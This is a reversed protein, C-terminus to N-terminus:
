SCRQIVTFYDVNRVVTCEAVGGASVLEEEQWSHISTIQKCNVCIRDPLSSVLFWMKDDLRGSGKQPIWAQTIVMSGLCESCFLRTPQGYLGRTGFEPRWPHLLPWILYCVTLVWPCPLVSAFLPLSVRLSSVHVQPNAWLGLAPPSAQPNLCWALPHEHCSIVNIEGGFRMLDWSASHQRGCDETEEYKMFLITKTREQMSVPIPRMMEQRSHLLLKQITKRGEAKEWRSEMRCTVSLEVWSRARSVWWESEM